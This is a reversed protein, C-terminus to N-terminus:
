AEFGYPDAPLPLGAQGQWLATLVGKGAAVWAVSAGPAPPVEDSATIWHTLSM